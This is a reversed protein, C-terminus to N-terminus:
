TPGPRRVREPAPLTRSGGRGPGSAGRVKGLAIYTRFNVVLTTMLSILLISWSFIFFVSTFPVNEPLELLVVAPFGLLLLLPPLRALGRNFHVWGEGEFQVLHLTALGYNISLLLLGFMFLIWLAIAEGAEMSGTAELVMLLVATIVTLSVAWVIEILGLRGKKKGKVPNLNEVFVKVGVTIILCIPLVMLAFLLIFPVFAFLLPGELDLLEDTLLSTLFFGILLIAPTSILLLMSISMINILLSAKLVARGTRGEM